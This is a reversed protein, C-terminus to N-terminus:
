FVWVLVGHTIVGAVFGYVFMLRMEFRYRTRNYYGQLTM